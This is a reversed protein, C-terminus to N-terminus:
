RSLCYALRAHSVVLLGIERLKKQHKRPGRTFERYTNPPNGNTSRRPTARTLTDHIESLAKKDPKETTELVDAEEVPRKQLFRREKLRIGAM